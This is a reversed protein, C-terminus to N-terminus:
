KLKAYEAKAQKLIPIDPDADQWLSLFDQYHTRASDLNGTMQEARALQLYALAGTVFNEVIGPHAILKQFEKVADSGNRLRM